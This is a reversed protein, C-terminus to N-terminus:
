WSLRHFLGRGEDVSTRGRRPTVGTDWTCGVRPSSGGSVKITGPDTADGTLQVWTSYPDGYQDTLKVTAWQSSRAATAANLKVYKSVPTITAKVLTKTTDSRSAHNNGRLEDTVFYRLTGDVVTAPTTEEEDDAREVTVTVYRM